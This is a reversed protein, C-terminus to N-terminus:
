SRGHARAVGRSAFSHIPLIGHEKDCERSELVFTDIPLSLKDQLNFTLERIYSHYNDMLNDNEDPIISLTPLYSKSLM